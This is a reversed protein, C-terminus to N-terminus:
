NENPEFVEICHSILFRFRATATPRWPKLVGAALMEKYTHETINTVKLLEGKKISSKGKPWNYEFERNQKEM